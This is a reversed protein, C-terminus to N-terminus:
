HNTSALHTSLLFHPRVYCSNHKPQVSIIKLLWFLEFMGSMIKELKCHLNEFKIQIIEITFKRKTFILAEGFFKANLINQCRSKM